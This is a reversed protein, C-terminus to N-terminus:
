KGGKPYLVEWLKNGLERIAREEAMCSEFSSIHPKVSIVGKIRSMANITAEIDDVRIDQELVATLAYCRDTM